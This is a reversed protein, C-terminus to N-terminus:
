TIIQDVQRMCDRRCCGNVQAGTNRCILPRSVWSIGHPDRM